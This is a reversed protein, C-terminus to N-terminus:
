RPVTEAAHDAQEILRAVDVRSAVDLKRFINRARWQGLQASVNITASDFDIDRWQTVM